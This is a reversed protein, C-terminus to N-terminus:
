QVPLNSISQKDQEIRRANLLNLPNGSQEDHKIRRVNLLNLLCHAGGHTTKGCQEDHPDHPTIDPRAPRRVYSDLCYM